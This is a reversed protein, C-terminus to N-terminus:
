RKFRPNPTEHEKNEIEQGRDGAEQGRNGSDQIQEELFDRISEMQSEITADVTCITSELRCGGRTIEPDTKLRIQELGSTREGSSERMKEVTDLDDPNLWIDYESNDLSIEIAQQLTRVIAERDTRLERNVIKQSLAMVLNITDGSSQELLNKHLSNIEKSACTFADIAQRLEHLITQEAEQKGRAHAEAKIIEINEIKQQEHEDPASSTERSEFSEDRDSIQGNDDHKKGVIIDDALESVLSIRTFGSGDKFIKYSNM